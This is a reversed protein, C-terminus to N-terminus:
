LYSQINELSKVRNWFYQVLLPVCIGSILYAIWWWANNEEIVPFEALREIPWGYVAIKILSVLKLCLFHLALIIMTNNGVYYFFTKIKYCEIWKSINLVMVIGTFALLTYPFVNEDKIGLMEVVNKYYVVGMFTIFTALFVTFKTYFMKSEVKRCCYGMVYFTASFALLGINGFWPLRINFHTSLYTIAILVFLMLYRNILRWRSCAFHISAIMLSTIFLSRIFWFAGLLQEGSSVRFIIGLFHKCFETMTYLHKTYLVGDVKFGYNSNYINIHYFFNHLILFLLSWKVFPLYLGKIRKIYFTKLEDFTKSPKYFYGSTFFFLPVAFFM